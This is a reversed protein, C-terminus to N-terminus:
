SAVLTRALALLDELWLPKFRLTAGLVKLEDVVADDIFYDGTVIAVPVTLLDLSSRLQRLFGLGDLLPMRLDLIVADPRVAGALELGSRPDVATHVKFGELALMRAFTETVSPDDDVILLTRTDAVVSAAPFTSTVPEITLTGPFHTM